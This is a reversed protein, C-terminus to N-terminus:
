GTIRWLSWGSKSTGRQRGVSRRIKPWVANWSRLLNCRLMRRVCRGCCWVSRSFTLARTAHSGRASSPRWTLPTGMVARSVALTEDDSSKALGFDLMKVGSKALMINGPKLDRHTFGKSHAEALADAIQSGYEIAQELSLKGRKLRAALMEGEVLELVLYNPGVDYLTCIHPHNLSSIARAERHFRESFQERCTKIAVRRGLRTDTALFVEGMGGAGLRSGIRYAGIQVGPGLHSSDLLEAAVEMAPRAMVEGSDQAL